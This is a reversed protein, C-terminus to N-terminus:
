EAAQPNIVTFCATNTHTLATDNSEVPRVCIATGGALGAKLAFAGLVTTESDRVMDVISYGSAAATVSGPVYTLSAQMIDPVVANHIAGGTIRRHAMHAALPGYRM